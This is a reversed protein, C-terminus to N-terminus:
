FCVKVGLLRLLLVPKGAELCLISNEKHFPHPTAVYIADVKPDNVLAEYSAHRTPVDFANAREQSRSGVPVLQADDLAQLGTASKKAINGPGLIGWRFVDGM